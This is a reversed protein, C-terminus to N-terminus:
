ENIYKLNIVKHEGKHKQDAYDTIDDEGPDFESDLEHPFM